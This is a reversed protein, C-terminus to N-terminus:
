ILGDVKPLTTATVALISNCCPCETVQGPEGEQSPYYFTRINQLIRVAGTAYLLSLACAKLPEFGRGRVV